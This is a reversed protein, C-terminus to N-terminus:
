NLRVDVSGGPVLTVTRRITRTRAQDTAVISVTMATTGAIIFRDTSRAAVTGLLREGTGDDFAVIMPEALENIVNIAQSQAGPGFDVGRMCATGAALVLIATLIMLPFRRM